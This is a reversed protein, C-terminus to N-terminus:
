FSLFPARLDSLLFAYPTIGTSSKCAVHELFKLCLDQIDWVAIEKKFISPQGKRLLDKRNSTHAGTIETPFAPRFSQARM